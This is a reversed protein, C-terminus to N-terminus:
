AEPELEAGQVAHRVDAQDDAHRVVHGAARPQAADLVRVELAHHRVVVVLGYGVPLDTLQQHAVRAAAQDIRMAGAGAARVLHVSVTLAGREVASRVRSSIADELAPALSGRLKLDLFRHNVARVDVTARTGGHEAVGRGFGTM